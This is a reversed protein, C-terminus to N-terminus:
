LIKENACQNKFRKQSKYDQKRIMKMTDETDQNELSEPEENQDKM